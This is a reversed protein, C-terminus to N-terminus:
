ADHRPALYTVLDWANRIAMLLLAVLTLGVAYEGVEPFRWIAVACAALAVYLATPIWGYCWEDSWHAPNPLQEGDHIRYGNLATYPGGIVVCLAVIAALPGPEMGPTLGAASIVLVVGLHFVTPSMFIKAGLTARREELNATLSVVVFLLGILAAAASGILLYFSEWEKLMRNGRERM